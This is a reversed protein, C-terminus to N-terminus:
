PAAKEFKAFYSEEFKTPRSLWKPDAKIAKAIEEIFSGSVFAAVGASALATALKRQMKWRSGSGRLVVYIRYLLRRHEEPTVALAADLEKIQTKM